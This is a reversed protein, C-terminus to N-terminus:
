QVTVSGTMSPHIGCVYDFTGATDFTREYTDGSALQESEPEGDSWKVTHPQQGNNTWTVTEGVSVTTTAPNFALDVIAVAAGGGGGGAPSTAPATPAAPATTAVTGGGCAALLPVILAGLILIRATRM